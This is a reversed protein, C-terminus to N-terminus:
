NVQVAWGFFRGSCSIHVHYRAIVIAEVLLASRCTQTRDSLFHASQTPAGPAVRLHSAKSRDQRLVLRRQGELIDGCSPIPEALIVM